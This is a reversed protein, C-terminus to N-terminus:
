ESATEPLWRCMPVHYCYESADKIVSFPNFSNLKISAKLTSEAASMMWSQYCVVPLLGSVLQISVSGSPKVGNIGFKVM